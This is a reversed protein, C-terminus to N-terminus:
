LLEKKHNMNVVRLFSSSLLRRTTSVESFEYDAELTKLDGRVAPLFRSFCDLM